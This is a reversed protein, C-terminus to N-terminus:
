VVVWWPDRNAIRTCSKIKIYKFILSLSSRTGVALLLEGHSNERERSRSCVRIPSPFKPCTHFASASSMQPQWPVRKTATLVTLSPAAVFSFCSSKRSILIICCSPGCGFTTARRPHQVSCPLITELIVPYSENIFSFHTANLIFNNLNQTVQSLSFIEYSKSNFHDCVCGPGVCDFWRYRLSCLLALTM